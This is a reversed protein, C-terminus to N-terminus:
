GPVEPGGQPSWTLKVKFHGEAATKAILAGAEGSLKVGFELELTEPSLRSLVRMSAEAAERVGDLADTLRKGAALVGDQSRSVRALGPADDDVEVLIGSEDDLEFRVVETM